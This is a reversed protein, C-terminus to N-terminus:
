GQPRPKKRSVSQNPMKAISFRPRHHKQRPMNQQGFHSAVLHARPQEHRHIDATQAATEPGRQSQCRAIVGSALFVRFKKRRDAQKAVALDSCSSVSAKKQRAAGRRGSGARQGEQLQYPRVASPAIAKQRFGMSIKPGNKAPATFGRETVKIV